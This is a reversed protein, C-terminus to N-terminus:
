QRTLSGLDVSSFIETHLMKGNAMKKASAMYLKGGSVYVMAGDELPTFENMAMAHTADSAKMHVMKGNMFLYVNREQLQTAEPEKVGQAMAPAAFSLVLLTAAISKLLSHM